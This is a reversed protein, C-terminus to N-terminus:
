TKDIVLPMLRSDNTTRHRYPWIPYRGLCEARRVTPFRGLPPGSM